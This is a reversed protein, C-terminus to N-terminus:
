TFTLPSHFILTTSEGLALQTTHLTRLQSHVSPSFLSFTVSQSLPLSLLLLQLLTFYFSTHYTSTRLPRPQTHTVKVESTLVPLSCESSSNCKICQTDGAPFHRPAALAVARGGFAGCAIAISAADKVQNQWQFACRKMGVERLSCCPCAFNRSM